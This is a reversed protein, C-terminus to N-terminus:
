EEVEVTITTKYKAGKNEEWMYVTRRVGAGIGLNEGRGELNEVGSGTMWGTFTKTVKRKPKPPAEPKRWWVDFGPKMSNLDGYSDVRADILSGYVKTVTANQQTEDTVGADVAVWCRDGVKVDKIDM